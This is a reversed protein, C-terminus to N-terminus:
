KKYQEKYNEYDPFILNWDEGNEVARMFADTCLVSMNFKSLVGPTKKAEVFQFVSPHWCSMTVMQAGKRISGKKDKREETSQAGETIIESSKDWLELFKVPGPSSGAIGFIHAGRPRMVDCCFGYGGESQLIKAQRYLADYIGEISDQDNGTFGSVYCNSIKIGNVTYSKDNEVSINYVVGDYKEKRKIFRDISLLNGDSGCDKTSVGAKFGGPIIRTYDKDLLRKIRNDSYSKSIKSLFAKAYKNVLLLKYYKNKPYNKVTCVSKSSPFGLIALMLQIENILNENNLLISINSKSVMGDSDFLGLLFTLKINSPSEWIFSPIKKSHSYRGCSRMLFNSFLPSSKRLYVGNFSKSKNINALLGVNKYLKEILSEAVSLENSHFAINFGDVEYAKNVSFTSGDGVFRGIFYAFDENVEVFRNIESNRTNVDRNAIHVSTINYVKSEDFSVSNKSIGNRKVDKVEEFMDLVINNLVSKDDALLLVNNNKSEEWRDNGQYFKHEPTCVIDRPLLSSSYVDVDGDYHRNMTSVVKEYRGKHTLVEDGIEVDKIEKVGAKTIVLADGSFCNIYTTGTLGTGANSLIRGGPVFQFGELISYFEDSWKEPEAETSALDKAVRKLTHDVNNDDGYKYKQKWVEESFTNTFETSM